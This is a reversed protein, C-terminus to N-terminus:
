QSPMKSREQKIQEREAALLQKLQEHRIQAPNGVLQFSPSSDTSEPSTSDSCGLTLIAGLGLIFNRAIRM